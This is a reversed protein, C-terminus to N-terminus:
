LIRSYINNSYYFKSNSLSGILRAFENTKNNKIYINDISGSFENSEYLTICQNNDYIIREIDGTDKFRIELLGSRIRIKSEM